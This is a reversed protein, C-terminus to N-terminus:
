GTTKDLYYNGSIGHARTPAGTIISLNNPNTVSPMACKATAHFGSKVFSAMTPLIGDTLGAELYSPDFGDICVVVTPSRPLRYDRGHLQVTPVKTSAMTLPPLIFALQAIKYFIPLQSISCLKFELNQSGKTSM